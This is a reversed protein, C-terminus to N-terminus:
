IFAYQLIVTKANVESLIVLYLFYTECLTMLIHLYQLFQQKHDRRRCINTEVFEATVVNNILSTHPARTALLPKTHVM